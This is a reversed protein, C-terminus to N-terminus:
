RTPTRAANDGQAPKRLPKGAANLPDIVILKDRALTGVLDPLDYVKQSGFVLNQFQNVATPTDVVDAWSVLSNKLTVTTFLQPELAAAHLAAPGTRGISMLHIKKAGENSSLFRSCVLIDEARVGVYSVNFEQLWLMDCFGHGFAETFGSGSVRLPCTEGMGRIDVALVLHGKKVLEEIPGSAQADAWKGDQHLYLYAQGDSKDPIYANAPLYITEEPQLILKRIRYGAREIAGAETVRPQPLDALKRIGTLRRVEELATAPPTEKWYKARQAALQKEYELNYDYVSRAGPLRWVSGQPLVQVEPETLVPNQDDPPESIPDSKDLLWRRLWQVAGVRLTSSFGHSAEAETMAMRDTAGQLAYVRRARQLTDRAGGVDFYYDKTAACIMSPQPSRIIFLEPHGLGNAMAGPISQEGDTEVGKELLRRYSTIFCSPVAVKVRPDAAMIYATATGGGSNGTAGIKDKIIDPRSELYDIARVGDWVWTRAATRGLPISNAHLYTHGIGGHTRREGQEFPDYCLAALGNRALLKCARQYTAGVKGFAVHGCPVIVGPYPAPTKPLYLMATNYVRPLSEFYVFEVRYDPYDLTRTVKAGLPCKETPLGGIQNLFVQRMREKYADIKEPAALADHFQQDYKALLPFGLRLVWAHIMNMPPVHQYRPPYAKDNHYLIEPLVTLEAAWDPPAPPLSRAQTGFRAAYAARPDTEAPRKAAPMTAASKTAPAVPGGWAARAVMLGAIATLVPGVGYARRGRLHDTSRRNSRNVTAERTSAKIARRM